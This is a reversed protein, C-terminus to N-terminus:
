VVSIQPNNSVVTYGLENISQSICIKSTKSMKQITSIINSTAASMALPGDLIRCIRNVIEPCQNEMETHKQM